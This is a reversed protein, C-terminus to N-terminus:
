AVTRSMSEMTGMSLPHQETCAQRGPATFEDVKLRQLAPALAGPAPAARQRQAPDLRVDIELLLDEKYPLKSMM